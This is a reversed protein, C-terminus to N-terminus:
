ESRAIKRLLAQKERELRARARKAEHQQRVRERGANFGEVIDEGFFQLSQGVDKWFEEFQQIVIGMGDFIIRVTDHVWRKFDEISMNYRENKSDEAAIITRVLKEFEPSTADITKTRNDVIEEM